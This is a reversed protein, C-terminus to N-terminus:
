AYVIQEIVQDGRDYSLLVPYFTLVLVLFSIAYHQRRRRGWGPRSLCLLFLCELLFPSRATPTTTLVTIVRQGNDGKNNTQGTMQWTRAKRGTSSGEVRMRRMKERDKDVRGVKERRSEQM